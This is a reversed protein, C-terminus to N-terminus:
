LERDGWYCLWTDRVTPSQTVRWAECRASCQGETARGLEQTHLRKANEALQCVSVGRDRQAAALQSFLSHAALLLFVAGLVWHVAVLHREAADKARNWAGALKAAARPLPIRLEIAPPPARRRDPRDQSRRQEARRDPRNPDRREPQPPPARERGRGVVERWFKNRAEKPPKDGPRPPEPRTGGPRAQPSENRFNSLLYRYSQNLKQFEEKAGVSGGHLDPHKQLALLRYSRRILSTNADEPVGLVACHHQWNSM